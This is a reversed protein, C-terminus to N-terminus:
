VKIHHKCCGTPPLPPSMTHLHSWMSLESLPHSTAYYGYFHVTCTGELKDM